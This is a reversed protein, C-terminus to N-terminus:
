NLDGKANKMAITAENVADDVTKIGDTIMSYGTAAGFGHSLKKLEKNLKRCYTVVGKEDHGVLYILFENGSTRIIESNSIQTSILIGAAEVIVKDGETHGFNDNIYAVNNLDVIIIAQPYVESNDWKEVNANLYNRNKLSTLTDVYRLKETKSLKIKHKKRNNIFRFTIIGLILILFASVLSLVVKIIKDNDTYSLVDAYNDSIIGEAPTFALYFDFFENFTKNKSIDHCIFTYDKELYFENDIKFKKLNERVNYDYAYYDLALIDENQNLHSMLDNSNSYEEVNINKSKLFASIKSDEIVKVEHDKLASLSSYSKNGDSSSVIVVKEDYVSTTEYVNVRYNNNEQYNFIIDLNNANFDNLLEKYSSYKKYDIEVNAAKVFNKLFGHNLGKLGENTTVDFPTNLVFGYTYRKSRFDAKTKEDIERADFYNESFYKYFSDDFNEAEWSNYYKILIDNLKKNNGLSLVYDTTYQTINYAINVEESSAVKNFNEIKPVVIASVNEKELANFLDETTKFTKYAINSAGDLYENVSEVENEYVGVVLDKIDSLKNYTKKGKTLLVYNDRYILIDNKDKSTVKGFSYDSLTDESYSIKNFELDTEEELDNLFDFLVGEGNVNLVPIDNMISLDIVKNKNEEIWKKESSTLATKEDEKVFNYFITGGIALIALGLIIGIIKKNM